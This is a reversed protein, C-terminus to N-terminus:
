DVSLVTCFSLPQDFGELVTTLLAAFFEPALSQISGENRPYLSKKAGCTGPM